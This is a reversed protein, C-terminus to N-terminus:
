APQAYSSAQCIGCINNTKLLRIYGYEGFLSGWSLKLKYYLDTGGVLLGALSLNTGCQDFIGGRYNRFNAGDVAVSIPRGGLAYDLAACSTVDM